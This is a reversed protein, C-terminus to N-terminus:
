SIDKLLKRLALRNHRRLPLSAGSILTVSMNGAPPLYFEKVRDLNVIASRHVRLFKKPDLMAQLEKLTRRLLHCASGVHLRVCDGFSQIWDIEEAHVILIRHDFEVVLRQLWDTGSVPEAQSSSCEVAESAGHDRAIESKALDMAAEFRDVDFPKVLLDVAIPAFAALDAPDYATVITASPRKSNLDILSEALFPSLAHADAVLIDPASQTIADIMQANSGSEALMVTQSKLSSCILRRSVADPEAVLIRLPPAPM